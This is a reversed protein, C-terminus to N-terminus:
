HDPQEREDTEQLGQDPWFFHNGLFGVAIGMTWGFPPWKSLRWVFASLTDHGRNLARAELVGFEIAVQALFLLWIWDERSASKAAAAVASIMGKPSEAASVSAQGSHAM